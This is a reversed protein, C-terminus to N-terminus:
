KYEGLRENINRMTLMFASLDNIKVNRTITVTWDGRGADIRVFVYGPRHKSVTLHSLNHKALFDGPEMHMIRHFQSLNHAQINNM